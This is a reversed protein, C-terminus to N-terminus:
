REIVYFLNENLSFSRLFNDFFSDGMIYITGYSTVEPYEKKYQLWIKLSSDMQNLLKFNLHIQRIYPLICIVPKQLREINIVNM